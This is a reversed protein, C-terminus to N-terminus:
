SAYLGHDIIYQRVSEPVLSAWEEGKRIAMRIQSSSIAVPPNDVTIHAYPFDVPQYSPRQALILIFDQAIREAEKWSPFSEAHDQGIVLAVPASLRDSFRLSISRLTDISWSIGGRSIECDDVSISPTTATALSLMALRDHTSATYDVVKGPSIYAPVLLVRDYGGQDRVAKALALHGNHVPNFLGGLMAIKM